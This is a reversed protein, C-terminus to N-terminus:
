NQFCITYTQGNSLGTPFSIEFGDFPLTLAYKVSEDKENFTKARRPVDDQILTSFDVAKFMVDLQAATYGAAYLAGVIAGTSTGAIYDIRVGAQEIAKLVGIHALGKAGGGSLVLGVSVDKNSQPLSDSSQSFGLSTFFIFLTCLLHRM